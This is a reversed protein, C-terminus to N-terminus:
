CDVWRASKWRASNSGHYGSLGFYGALFGHAIMVLVTGTIGILTGSAIGLFAFGM